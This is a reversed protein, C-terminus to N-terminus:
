LRLCRRTSASLAAAAATEGPKEGARGYSSGRGKRAASRARASDDAPDQEVEIDPSIGVNEAIWKSEVPDWVGSSPATVVGGDMLSPAGARGILGGWTRKGILKGVGARRFYWPMADGGSGANENILMVKPGAILGQPQIEDDGDRTAVSSLLRRSLFEIVDTALNGGANFREDVIAAETRTQAYFYRNFNTYGGSSTDPLYIYAVRGNTMQDVKRRNDEIWALNRLRSDSGIPVVTVERADAGSPDSGVRIRTQRGSRGEFFSYVNDGAGLDRGNVALLYEGAM